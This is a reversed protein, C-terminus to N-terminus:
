EAHSGQTYADIKDGVIRETQTHATRYQFRGATARQGGRIPRLHAVHFSHVAPVAASFHGNEEAETNAPAHATKKEKEAAPKNQKETTNM